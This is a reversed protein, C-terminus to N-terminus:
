SQESMTGDVDIEFVTTDFEVDDLLPAEEGQDNLELEFGCM